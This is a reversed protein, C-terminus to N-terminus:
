IFLYILRFEQLNFLICPALVIEFYHSASFQHTYVYIFVHFCLQLLVRMIFVATSCRAHYLYQLHAYINM